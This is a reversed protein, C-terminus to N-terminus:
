ERNDSYYVNCNSFNELFTHATLNKHSSFILHMRTDFLEGVTVRHYSNRWLTKRPVVTTSVNRRRETHIITSRKSHCLIMSVLHWM